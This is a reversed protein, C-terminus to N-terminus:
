EWEVALRAKGAALPLILRINEESVGFEPHWSGREIRLAGGQAVIWLRRGDPMVLFGADAAIAEASIAPHLHFHAEAACAPAVDDDIVLRASSLEFRRRHAPGGPLHRYGDHTGAATLADATASTQVDFMRARRGVRFGDWVESSDQGAVVVCNHAATGRQRLREPSSGYESTGSNVFVRQDFLSFEFSLSDAHAHGPLYDPGVAALDVIAFAPGVEMRVFGSPELHLLQGSPRAVAIGLRGAYGLLEAPDPAIGFAADNFFAIRGDPHMMAAQWRLAAEAKQRLREALQVRGAEPFATTVNSLDLLDELGLAHYMPSLEFQGGDPLFQEDLEREIICKGQHLWGVAEEGAFYLGAFVLAKANIFLHNGLLHWELRRALWRTQVALSARAAHDLTGGSLSWKIWNIIRLSTPYPEWGSGQTPPNEEIWRAVLREHWEKRARWDSATLDEFYHQNYRWLKAERPDDWGVTDLDGEHNLFRFRGPGVLSPRRRAPEVWRGTPIRTAPPPSRDARPRALRFWFRGYIQVPRLHRVTRWLRKARAIAGLQGPETM